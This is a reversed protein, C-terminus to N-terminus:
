PLLTFLAGNEFSLFEEMHNTGGNREIIDDLFHTSLHVRVQSPRTWDWLVRFTFSTSRENSVAIAHQGTSTEIQVAFSEHLNPRARIEAIMAETLAFDTETCPEDDPFLEQITRGRDGMACDETFEVSVSQGPQVSLDSVWIVHGSGGEGYNGGMAGLTARPVQDLSGRVSVDVVHMEDLDITTVQAGDLQISLCPM